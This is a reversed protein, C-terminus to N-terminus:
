NPLIGSDNPPLQEAPIGAALLEHRLAAEIALPHISPLEKGNIFVAPTGQLGLQRGVAVQARVEDWAADSDLCTDFSSRDLSLKDAISLLKKRSLQGQNDFTQDHYPWFSGQRRACQTAVAAQCAEPHMDRSMMENCKKGLPYHKFTFHVLEYYRQAIDQMYWGLQRCHPCEFDAFEVFQVKSQANGKTADFSAAPIDKAAVTKYDDLFQVLAARSEKVAQEKEEETMDEFAKPPEGHDHGDHSDHGHSASDGTAAKGGSSASKSAMTRPGTIGAKELEGTYTKYTIGTGAVLTVAAILAVPMKPPLAGLVSGVIGKGSAKAAALLLIINVADIGLCFLCWTKLEAAQIYILFLGDLVGIAAMATIIDVTQARREDSGRLALFGLLGTTLFFGLVLASLPLEPREEGINVKAWKSRAVEVCSTNGGVDCASSAKLDEISLTTDAAHEAKQVQFHTTTLYASLGMGILSVLIIILLPKNNAPTSM